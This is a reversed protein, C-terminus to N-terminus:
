KKEMDAKTTRLLNKDDKSIWLENMFLTYDICKAILLKVKNKMKKEERALREM